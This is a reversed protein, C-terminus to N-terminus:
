RILSWHVKYVKQSHFLGNRGPFVSAENNKNPRYFLSKGIDKNANLYM